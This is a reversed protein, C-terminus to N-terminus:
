AGARGPPTADTSRLRGAAEVPDLSNVYIEAGLELGALVTLRPVVQMFSATEEGGFLGYLWANWPVPGEVAHLKRICTRLLRLTAGLHDTGGILLEYPLRGAPHVIAEEINDEAVFLDQRELLEEIVGPDVKPAGSPPERLFAIQSHTHPLSSGAVRGENILPLIYTFGEELGATARRLWAQEVLDIEEDTLEAFSRKHEPSHIVVEQREIAPYLNPVVRVIWQEAGDPLRLTEPPTRDERGACFPCEDLEEQTEPEILTRSAGPRAARGPAIVV